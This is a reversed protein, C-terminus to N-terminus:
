TPVLTLPSFELDNYGSNNLEELIKIDIENIWAEISLNKNHLKNLYYLTSDNYIGKNLIGIKLKQCNDGQGYVLNSSLILLLISSTLIWKNM